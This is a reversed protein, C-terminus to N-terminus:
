GYGTKLDGAQHAADLDRMTQALRDSVDVRSPDLVVLGAAVEPDDEFRVVAVKEIVAATAAIDGDGTLRLASRRWCFRSCSAACSVSFGSAATISNVSSGSARARRHM